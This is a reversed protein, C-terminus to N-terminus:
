NESPRRVGDIVLVPVPARSPELRLGLAEEVASFFSPRADDPDTSTDPRWSLAVDFVGDVGTENRVVQELMASFMGAALQDLSTARIAVTGRLRNGSGGGECRAKDCEPRRTLGNGLRRDSRALRMRYVTQERPEFHSQLSFRDVLLQRLMAKRTNETIPATARADIDFRENRTWSPLGVVRFAQVDFAYRIISDLPNNVLRLGNPPNPPFPISLDAGTNAKVSAVDFRPL